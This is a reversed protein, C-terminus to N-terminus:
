RPAVAGAAEHAAAERRLWALAECVMAPDMSSVEQKHGLGDPLTVHLEGGLHERFEELGALLIPTGDPTVQALASHWLPLGLRRFATLMRELDEPKLSGVQVAYRADLLLGMGVAEGHRLEGVALMELKHAAWHGFDLPRASGFEFPDGGTRIHELHLEACRVILEEMTALHRMALPSVHECLWDFFPADKIMAVKFAEPIGAIWDRDALSPLFAFDDIVAFPPAFSGLYNKQDFMNIGNKVGVGSDNQALVTTPMRIQRVGRHVIAAALGVADLFAGGGIICAFSQRDLRCRHCLACLDAIVGFSKLKEGGPIVVPEGASLLAGHHHDVYRAIDDLLAPYAALLTQEIIFLVRHRRTPELRIVVDRLVPNEPKFVHRTFVVDYRFPVSFAQTVTRPPLAKGRAMDM